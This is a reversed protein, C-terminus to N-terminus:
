IQVMLGEPDGVQLDQCKSAKHDQSGIIKITCKKLYAGMRNNKETCYGTSGKLKRSLLCVNRNQPSFLVVLCFLIRRTLQSCRCCSQKEGWGGRDSVSPFFAM